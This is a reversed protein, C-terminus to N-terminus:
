RGYHGLRALNEIRVEHGQRWMQAKGCSPFIAHFSSVSIVFCTYVGLQSRTLGKKQWQAYFDGNTRTQDAKQINPYRALVSFTIPFRCCLPFSGSMKFKKLEGAIYPMPRLGGILIFITVPRESTWYFETFRGTRVRMGHRHPPQPLFVGPRGIRHM